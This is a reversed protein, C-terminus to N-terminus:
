IDFEGEKTMVPLDKFIERMKKKYKNIDVGEFYKLHQTAEIKNYVDLRKLFYELVNIRRTLYLEKARFMDTFHENYMELSSVFWNTSCYEEFNFIETYKWIIKRNGFGLSKIFKEFTGGAEETACPIRPHAQTRDTIDLFIGELHTLEKFIPIHKNEDEELDLKLHLASSAEIFEKAFQYDQKELFKNSFNTKFM